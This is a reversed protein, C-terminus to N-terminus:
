LPTIVIVESWPGSPSWMHLTNPHYPNLSYVVLLPNPIELDEINTSEKLNTSKFGCVNWVKLINKNYNFMEDLFSTDLCSEPANV